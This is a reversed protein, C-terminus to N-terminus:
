LIRVVYCRDRICMERAWIKSKYEPYKARAPPVTGDSRAICRREAVSAFLAAEDGGVGARIEVIVNKDDNPDKPLLLIKLEAEIVKLSEELVSIDESLMQRFEEEGEEKLMQRNDNIQKLVSEYEDYKLVM